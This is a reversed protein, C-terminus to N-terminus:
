AADEINLQYNSDTEVQRINEKSIRNEIREALLVGTTDDQRCTNGYGYVVIKKLMKNEPKIGSDNM